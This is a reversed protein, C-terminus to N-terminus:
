KSGVLNYKSALPAKKIMSERSDRIKQEKASLKQVVNFTLLTKKALRKHWETSEKIQKSVSAKRNSQNASRYDMFSENKRESTRNRLQSKVSAFHSNEYHTNLNFSDRNVPSPQNERLNPMKRLQNPSSPVFDRHLMLSQLRSSSAM